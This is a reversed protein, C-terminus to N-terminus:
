SQVRFKSHFNPFRQRLAKAWPSSEDRRLPIFFPVSSVSYFLADIHGGLLVLVRRVWENLDFAHTDLDRSAPYFSPLCSRLPHTLYLASRTSTDEPWLLRTSDSHDLLRFCFNAFIYRSHFAFANEFSLRGTVIPFSEPYDLVVM